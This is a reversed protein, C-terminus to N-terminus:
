VYSQYDEKEIDSDLNMIKIVRNLYYRHLIDWVKDERKEFFYYMVKFYPPLLDIDKTIAKKSRYYKSMYKFSQYLTLIDDYLIRFRKITEQDPFKEYDGDIVSLAMDTYLRTKSNKIALYQPTKIKYPISDKYVIVGEFDRGSFDKFFDQLENMTRFDYITPTLINKPVELSINGNNIWIKDDKKILPYPNGYKDQSAVLYLGFREKPYITKIFSESTVLEFTLYINAKFCKLIFEKYDYSALETACKVPDTDFSWRSSFYLQGEFVYPLIMMGDLKEICNDFSDISAPYNFRNMARYLVNYTNKMKVFVTGRLYNLIPFEIFKDEIITDYNIKVLETGKINFSNIRVLEPPLDSHKLFDIFPAEM